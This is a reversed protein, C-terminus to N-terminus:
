IESPSQVGVSVIGGLSAPTKVGEQREALGGGRLSALHPIHYFLGRGPAPPQVLPNPTTQSNVIRAVM